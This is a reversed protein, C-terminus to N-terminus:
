RRKTLPCLPTTLGIVLNVPLMGKRPVLSTRKNLGVVGEHFRGITGTVLSQGLDGFGRLGIVPFSHRHMPREASIRVALVMVTVLAVINLSQPHNGQLDAKIGGM